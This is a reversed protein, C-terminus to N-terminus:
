ARGVPTMAALADSAAKRTAWDEPLTVNRSLNSAVAIVRGIMTLTVGADLPRAFMRGVILGIATACVWMVEGDPVGQALATEIMRGARPVYNQDAENASM